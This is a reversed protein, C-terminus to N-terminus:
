SNRPPAHSKRLLNRLTSESCPLRKAPATMFNARLAGASKTRREFFAGPSNASNNPSACWMPAESRSNGRATVCKLMLHRPSGAFKEEANKLETIDVGTPHLFIVKGDQDFIPYLAFDVIRDTGDAWSYHLMERFPTGEAALPTAARIKDQSEKFNRWWATEWFMKGLVQDSTYGCAELCLKNADIMTGDKTMIGAFVTTQEFVARFKATAAITEAALQRERDEAQKRDSIDRTVALHLVSGDPNHLPVSHSEMHRRVGQLGIIDFELSGKEGACVRKNFEKFKQRDEPAILGYVNKGLVDDASAAGVMQLGPSNMLLLKGDPDVLKVCEPTTDVIARFREESQRM